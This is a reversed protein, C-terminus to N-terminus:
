LGLEAMARWQAEELVEARDIIQDSNDDLSWFGFRQFTKSTEEYRVLGDGDLDMKEFFADVKANAIADIKQRSEEPIGSQQDMSVAVDSQLPTAVDFFAVAMEEWTQDGWSVFEDAAPNFPNQDSNDFTVQMELQAIEDTSIPEAFTYWHQWNFDYRPVSLLPQLSDDQRRAKMEFAKGRFHMHPTIGLLRGNPPLNGRAMRVSFDSANPPIEFEHNIAIQTVVEHTVADADAFWVGLKSLDETPQGTPTYHMQFILKSGAPIRRAHGSPLPITRQGPVYAGLWGIGQFAEGDPPRVFVIAHHVVSANGPQIQAARVWRDEEWKPDVVFYQYEVIGDAPVGFPKNRMEFELDPSSELHWGAHWEPNPPLKTLDGSPMGQAVWEAITDRDAAPVIRAGLFHGVTPDAHWPPMRQDDIVEVIMEGWGVVEDYDSLEMPGIEGARHCEVCHKNLLPAVHLAFTVLDNTRESEDTYSKDTNSKNAISEGSSSKENSSGDPLRSNPRFTIRCGAAPTFPLEVRSGALVSEIALQLDERSPAAKAVGPQYQDDVRGVYAVNGDTDLLFVQPTREAGFQAAITQDADKAIPFTLANRKVFDQIEDPSDQLNSNVGIFQVKQNAYQKAFTDLRPAYLKALPCENGLFAVVTVLESDVDIKEGTPTRFTISQIDIATGPTAVSPSKSPGKALLSANRNPLGFVAVGVLLSALSFCRFHFFSEYM